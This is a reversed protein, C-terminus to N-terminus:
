GPPPDAPPLGTRVSQEPVGAHEPLAREEDQLLTPPVSPGTREPRRGEQEGARLTPHPQPPYGNDDRVPGAGQRAEEHLKARGELAEGQLVPLSRSGPDDATATAAADRNEPDAGAPHGAARRRARDHRVPERHDPETGERQPRVRSPRDPTRPRQL